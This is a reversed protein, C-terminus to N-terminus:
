LGMEYAVATCNMLSGTRATVGTHHKDALHVGSGLSIIHLYCIDTWTGLINKTESGIYVAAGRPSGYFIM